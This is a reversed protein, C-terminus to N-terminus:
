WLSDVNSESPLRADVEEEKLIERFKETNGSSFHLFGETKKMNYIGLAFCTVEFLM